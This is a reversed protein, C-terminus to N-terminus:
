GGAVELAILREDRVVVNGYDVEVLYEITNLLVRQNRGNVGAVPVALAGIRATGLLSWGDALPRGKYNRCETGEGWLLYTQSLTDVANTLNVRWPAGLSESHGREADIAARHRQGRGPDNLWRLEAVQSFIRAEFVMSLDVPQGDSGRLEGSALAAFECSQPSYLLGVAAAGGVNTFEALAEALSVRDRDHVFLTTAIM